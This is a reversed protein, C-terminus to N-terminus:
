SKDMRCVDGGCSVTMSAGTFRKMLMMTLAIGLVMAPYALLAHASLAPLDQLILAANGGPVMMAGFGMTFGGAVNRLWMDGAFSYSFQRNTVASAIAGILVFVFLWAAIGGSATQLQPREIFADM